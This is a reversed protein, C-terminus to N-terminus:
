MVIDNRYAFKEAISKKLGKFSSLSGIDQKSIDNKYTNHIDVPASAIYNKSSPPPVVVDHSPHAQGM